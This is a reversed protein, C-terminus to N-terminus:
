IEHNANSPRHTLYSGIMFPILKKKKKNPKKHAIHKKAKRQGEKKTEGVITESM